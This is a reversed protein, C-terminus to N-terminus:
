GFSPLFYHGAIFLVKLWLHIVLKKCYLRSNRFFFPSLLTTCRIYNIREGVINHSVRPFQALFSYRLHSDHYTTWLFSLKKKIQLLFIHCLILLNFWIKESVSYQTSKYKYVIFYERLLTHTRAHTRAHMHIYTHIYIILNNWM